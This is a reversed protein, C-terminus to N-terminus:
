FVKSKHWCCEAKLRQKKCMQNIYEVLNFNAQIKKINLFLVKLNIPATRKGM